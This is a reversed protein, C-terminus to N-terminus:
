WGQCHSSCLPQHRRHNRRNSRSQPQLLSSQKDCHLFNGSLFLPCSALQPSCFWHSVWHRYRSSCLSNQRGSNCRNSTWLLGPCRSPCLSNHRRHNHRSSTRSWLSRRSSCLHNHRRPTCWSSTRSWGPCRSSCLTPQRRPNCRSSRFLNPHPRQSCNKMYYYHTRYHRYTRCRCLLSTQHCHSLYGPM